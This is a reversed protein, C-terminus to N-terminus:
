HFILPIHIPYNLIYGGTDDFSSHYEFTAPFDRIFMAFYLNRAPFIMWLILSIFVYLYKYMYSIYSEM